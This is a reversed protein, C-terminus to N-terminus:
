DILTTTERDDVLSALLGAGQVLLLVILVFSAAFAGIGIILDILDV